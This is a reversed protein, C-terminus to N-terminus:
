LAEYNTYIYILYPSSIVMWRVDALCWVVALAKRESNAYCTEVDELWFSIFMIMTESERHMSSNNAEINLSIGTLQFM